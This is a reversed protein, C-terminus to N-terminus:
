ARPMTVPEGIRVPSRDGIAIAAAWGALLALVTWTLLIGGARPLNRGDMRMGVPHAIRAVVFTVGALWLWTPSGGALEIGGMLILVFPAYEAFNAHARMDRLMRVDGGDGVAIGNLRRPVLRLALWLTIAACAAATSLTVPLVM